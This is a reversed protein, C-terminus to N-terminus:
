ALEDLLAKADKLDATDFGETFWGYVPALLDQSQARKGEHAWLRALSTASRLEFAKASQQRAIELARHFCAEAEARNETSLALLLEGQLRHLEAEWWREGSGEAFALAEAIASQAAELRGAWGHIEALLALFYSRRVDAGAASLAALGERVAAAGAEVDGQAAVAWGRILIGTARYQLYAQEVSRAITAEAYEQALGAEGRVQHLFSSYGLAIALSYPQVLQTALRVAEHAMAMAQDPCGLLWLVLAGHYRCCVGPDHGAYRLAHSRHEHPNYLALGQETHGRCLLLEGGYLLVPWAAHHAQLLLGKDRERKALELLEYSLDRATKFKMRMHHVYWLGWVADYAMRTDGLREALERARLYVKAVEPVPGRTTILSVGLANRLQVEERAHETTEPL